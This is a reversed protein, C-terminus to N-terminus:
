VYGATSVLTGPGSDVSPRPPERRVPEQQTAGLKRTSHRGTSLALLLSSRHAPFTSGQVTPQARERQKWRREGEHPKRKEVLPCVASCAVHAVTLLHKVQQQANGFRPQNATGKGAVLTPQNESRQGRSEQPRTVFISIVAADGRSFRIQVCLRVERQEHNQGHPKREGPSVGMCM